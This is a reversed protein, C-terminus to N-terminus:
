SGGMREDDRVGGGLKPESGICPRAEGDANGVAIAHRGGADASVDDDVDALVELVDMVHEGDQVLVAEDELPGLAEEILVPNVVQAVDDGVVGHGHVSVLDGCDLSPWEWM